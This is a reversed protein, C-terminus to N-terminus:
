PSNKAWNPIAAGLEKAVRAFATDITLGAEACIVLLDIADPLGKQIALTRSKVKSDLFMDAGRYSLFGGLGFVGALKKFQGWDPFVNLYYIAIGLGGGIVVPLIARAMIIYVALDKNRIGAHALKQHIEKIQSDQLVKMSDLRNRLKDTNENKKVLKARKRSASVVIGAKLQERRENLAKVRKVMPDRVTFATYFAFVLAASAVGALITAVWLVDVGLLTPGTAAVEQM